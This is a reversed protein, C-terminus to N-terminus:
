RAAGPTSLRWGESSGWRVEIIGTRDTRLVPIRERALRELAESAPHGFPNSRGASIVALRPRLARLFPRSSSSASGHHAVKLLSVEQPLMLPHRVLLRETRSGVDGTLLLSRGRSEGRLVLSDENGQGRGGPLPHLARFRWSRWIALEGSWLPRLRAGVTLALQRGCGARMAGPSMWIEDIAVYDALELLGRCHDRDGHSLVVVELRRLRLAGLAPLLAREALGPGRWGGGDVLLGGRGDRMLLADGQGVDLFRVTTDSSSGAVCSGLLLAGAAATPIRCRPRRCLVVLAVLVFTLGWGSGSWPLGGGLAPPLGSPAAIWGAILDLPAVTAGAARPSTAALAAWGLSLPVAIAVLPALLLNWLWAWVPLWHFTALTVPLTALQAGITAGLARALSRPASGYWRPLLRAGLIVGGTAAFTLQYGLERVIAPDLAALMAAAWVLAHAPRPPARRLAGAGAAAVMLWARLLSPRFGGLGLYLLTGLLVVAFRWPRPLGRAAFLCWVGVVGLHLGSLAVLHATGTRRLGRLWREPLAATDGLALARALSQGPRGSAALDMAGLLSRRASAMGVALRGQLSAVPLEEMLRASKLHLRWPPARSSEGNALAPPRGLYGRLRWRRGIPRAGRPMSLWLEIDWRAVVTGQRITELSARTTALDGSSRWGGAQRLALSVPRRLDIAAPPAARAMWGLILGAAVGVGVLRPGRPLALALGGLGVAATIGTRPLVQAAGIAALLCLAMAAPADPLRAAGGGGRGSTLRELAKSAAELARM